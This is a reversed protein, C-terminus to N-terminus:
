RDPSYDTIGKFLISPSCRPRVVLAKAVAARARAGPWSRRAETSRLPAGDAPTTGQGSRGPATALSSGRWLVDATPRCHRRRVPRNVGNSVVRRAAHRTVLRIAGHAVHRTADQTTHHRVCLWAHCQIFSYANSAGYAVLRIAGRAVCRLARSAVHRAAHRTVLQIAPSAFSALPRRSAVRLVQSLM